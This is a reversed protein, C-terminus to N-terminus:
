ICITGAICDCGFCNHCCCLVMRQICLPCLVRTRCNHHLIGAHQGHSSNGLFFLDADGFALLHIYIGLTSANRCVGAIVLNRCSNPEGVFVSIVVNGEIEIISCERVSITNIHTDLRGARGLLCIGVHHAVKIQVNGVSVRALSHGGFQLVATCPKSHIGAFPLCYGTLNLIPGLQMHRQELCGISNHVNSIHLAALGECGLDTEVQVVFTCLIIQCGLIHGLVGSITLHRSGLPFVIDKTAPEQILFTNACRDCCFRQNVGNHIM